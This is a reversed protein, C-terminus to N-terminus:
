AKTSEEISKGDNSSESAPPKKEEIGKSLSDVRSDTSYFGKGKFVIGVPHFVRRLEGGCLECTELSEGIGHVVEFSENCKRCRYEYKPM